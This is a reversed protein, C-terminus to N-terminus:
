LSESLQLGNLQKPTSTQVPSGPNCGVASADLSTGCSMEASDCPSAPASHCKRKKALVRTAVRRNFCKKKLTEYCVPDIRWYCGKGAAETMRPGKIFYKNLSLNHRISNKWGQHSIHQFYPYNEELFAYIDLLTLQQEPSSTIAQIILQAYSYPPKVCEIM